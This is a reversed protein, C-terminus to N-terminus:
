RHQPGVAPLDGLERDVAHHGHRFRLCIWPCVLSLFGATLSLLAKTETGPAFFALYLLLGLLVLWSYSMPCYNYAWFPGGAAGTQNSCRSASLCHDLRDCSGSSNVPQPLSFGRLVPGEGPPWIPTHKMSLFVPPTTFPPATTVTVSAM